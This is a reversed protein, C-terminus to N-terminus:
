YENLKAIAEKLTLTEQNGSKMDKLTVKGAQLEREGIILTFDTGINNAHSLQAKFNRKMLDIHAPMIKRLEMTTEIAELRTKETCIVM